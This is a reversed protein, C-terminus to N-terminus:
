FHANLMQCACHRVSWWIMSLRRSYRSNEAECCNWWHWVQSLPIKSAGTTDTYEGIHGSTAAASLASIGERLCRRGSGSGAGERGYVAAKGSPWCGGAGCFTGKPPFQVVQAHINQRLRQQHRHASLYQDIALRLWNTLCLM